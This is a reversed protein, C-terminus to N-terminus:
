SSLKPVRISEGLLEDVSEAARAALFSDIARLFGNITFDAAAAKQRLESMEVDSFKNAHQKREDRLAIKAPDAWEKYHGTVLDAANFMGSRKSWNDRMFAGSSNRRAYNQLTSESVDADVDPAQFTAVLNLAEVEGADAIQEVSADREVNVDPAEPTSAGEEEPPTSQFQDCISELTARIKSVTAPAVRCRAAIAGNPLRPETCVLRFARRAERRLTRYYDAGAAVCEADEAAEIPERADLAATELQEQREIEIERTPERAFAQGADSYRAFDESTAPELEGSGGSVETDKIYAKMETDIANDILEVRAAGKVNWIPSLEFLQMYVKVFALWLPADTPKYLQINGVPPPLMKRQLPKPLLEIPDVPVLRWRVPRGPKPPLKVLKGPTLLRAAAGIIVAPKAETGRLKRFHFNRKARRAVYDFLPKTDRVSM